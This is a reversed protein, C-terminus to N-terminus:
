KESLPQSTVSRLIVNIVAIGMFAVGYYEAGILDKVLHMYTEVIGLVAVTTNFQLTKSKHLKLLWNM